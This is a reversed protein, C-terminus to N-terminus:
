LQVRMKQELLSAIAINRKIVFCTLSKKEKNKNNHITKMLYGNYNTLNIANHNKYRNQQLLNQNITLYAIPTLEKTLKRGILM